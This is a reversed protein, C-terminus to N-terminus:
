QNDIMDFYNRLEEIFEPSTKFVWVYNDPNRFHPQIRIPRFGKEVLHSYLRPRVCYYEDKYTIEM